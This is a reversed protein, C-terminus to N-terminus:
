LCTAGDRRQYVKWRVPEHGDAYGRSNSDGGGPQEAHDTRQAFDPDVSEALVREEQVTGDARGEEQFLPM